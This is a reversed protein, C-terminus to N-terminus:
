WWFTAAMGNPLSRIRSINSPTAGACIPSWRAAFGPKRNACGIAFRGCRRRAHDVVEGSPDIKDRTQAIEGKFSAAGAAAREIIPFSGSARRINLRAEEISDLFSALALLRPAELARGEVTLAELTVPLDAAARVPFVGHKVIFRVTETTAALAAAVVSADASPALEALRLDGMPTLAFERVLEVIRDFELARLVPSQM